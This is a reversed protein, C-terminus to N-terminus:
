GVEHVVHRLTELVYVPLRQQHQLGVVEDPADLVRELRLLVHDPEEDHGLAAVLRNISQLM